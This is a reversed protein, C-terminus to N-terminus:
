VSNVISTCMSYWQIDHLDCVDDLNRKGNGTEGRGWFVYGPGWVFHELFMDWFVYNKIVQCLKAFDGWYVFWITMSCWQSLARKGCTEWEERPFDRHVEQHFGPRASRWRALGERRAAVATAHRPGIQVAGDPCGHRPSSAFPRAAAESSPHNIVFEGWLGFRYYINWGTRHQFIVVLQTIHLYM